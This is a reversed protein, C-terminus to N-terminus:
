SDFFKVRRVYRSLKKKGQFQRIEGFFEMWHSLIFEKIRYSLHVIMTKEFSVFIVDSVSIVECPVSMIVKVFDTIGDPKFFQFFVKLRVAWMGKCVEAFFPFLDFFLKEPPHYEPCCTGQVPNNHESNGIKKTKQSSNTDKPYPKSLRMVQKRTKKDLPMLYKHKGSDYVIHANPDVNKKLWEISSTKYRMGVTRSHKRVGNIIIYGAPETKGEYIWNSAQYIIGIHGQRIDAYSVILKLGPSTQKLLTIARSLIQTVPARHDRLAVRTLEIVETNSMGYPKCINPSAGRSFIIAGIFRDDEWAGIKVLKSAPVCKSYHWHTCAYQAADFSCFDVQLTM